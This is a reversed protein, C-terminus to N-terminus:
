AKGDKPVRGEINLNISGIKATLTVTDGAVKVDEISPEAQLPLSSDLYEGEWKGDAEKLGLLLTLKQGEGIPFTTKRNGDPQTPAAPTALLVLTALLAAPSPLM